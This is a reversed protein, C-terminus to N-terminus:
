GDTEERKIYKVTEATSCKARECMVAYVRDRLDTKRKRVPIGDDAFFPGDVYTVIRPKRGFRRKHYTNTFCFVPASLKVPYDFSVDGFPRIGTYYPWIHAEPYIAVANKQSIRTEIAKIFNRYADKGDPLPIAGLSPMIGGVVPMSVNNPHVIVYVSKKYDLLSPVLADGIDQTHNGYIFYARDRYEKLKKAGIIKQRFSLKMYAFALPKAVIYYWFFRTFRKFASSYVYRYNADIKKPTIKAVSFEDNLEDSYYIVKRKDM